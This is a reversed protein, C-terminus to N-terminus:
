WPIQDWRADFNQVDDNQPCINFQDSLGQAADYAGTAQFHDYIMYAIQRGRLLRNNKLESSTLCQSAIRVDLMEFDLFEGRGEIPQLTM